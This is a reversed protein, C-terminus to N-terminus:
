LMSGKKPAPSTPSFFFFYFKPGNDLNDEASRNKGRYSDLMRGRIWSKPAFLFLKMSCQPFLIEQDSPPTPPLKKEDFFITTITASKLVHTTPVTPERERESMSRRASVGEQKLLKRGTGGGLFPSSILRQEFKDNGKWTGSGSSERKRYNWNMKDNRTRLVQLVHVTCYYYITLCPCRDM